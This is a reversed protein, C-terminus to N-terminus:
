LKSPLLGYGPRIFLGSLSCERGRWDSLGTGVGEGVRRFVEKGMVGQRIRTINWLGATDRHRWTCGGDEVRRDRTKMLSLNSAIPLVLARIRSRDM